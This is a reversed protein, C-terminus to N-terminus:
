SIGGGLQVSTGISDSAFAVDGARISGADLFEHIVNAEVFSSWSRNLNEIHAKQIHGGFHGRLNESDQLDAAIRDVDNFTDFKIKKIHSNYSETSMGDLPQKIPRLSQM